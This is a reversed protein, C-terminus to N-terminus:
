EWGIYKYISKNVDIIEKQDKATYAIYIYSEDSSWTLTLEDDSNRFDNWTTVDDEVTYHDGFTEVLYKLLNEYGLQVTEETDKSGDYMALVRALQSPPSDKTRVLCFLAGALVPYEAFNDDFVYTVSYSKKESMKSEFEYFPVIGENALVERLKEITIRLPIGKYTLKPKLSSGNMILDDHDLDDDYNEVWAEIFNEYGDLEDPDINKTKLFAEFRGQLDDADKVTWYKQFEEYLAKLDSNDAAFAYSSILGILIIITIFVSIVKKM